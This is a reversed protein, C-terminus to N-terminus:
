KGFNNFWIVFDKGEIKNDNNFDTNGSPDSQPDNGYQSVPVRYDKNDVVGDGNADGSVPAQTPENTLASTVM